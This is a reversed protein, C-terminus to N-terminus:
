KIRYLVWSAQEDKKFYWEENLTGYESKRGKVIKNNRTDVVYDIARAEIEVSFNMDEEFWYLNGVTKLMLDEIINKQHNTKMEDIKVTHLRFLEKGYYKRVSELDQNQWAEQIPYFIKKIHEDISREKSNQVDLKKIKGSSGANYHNERQNSSMAMSVFIYIGFGIMLLIAIGGSSNSDGFSSRYSNRSWKNYGYDDNYSNYGGGTYGGGDYNAGGGGAFAFVPKVLSFCFFLIFVVVVM